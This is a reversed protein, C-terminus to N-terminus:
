PPRVAETAAHGPLVGVGVVHFFELRRTPFFVIEEPFVVLGRNGMRDAMFELAERVERGIRLVAHARSQHSVRVGLADDERGRFAYGAVHNPEAHELKLDVARVLSERRVLGHWLWAVVVLVLAEEDRETIRGGALFRVASRAVQVDFFPGRVLVHDVEVDGVVRIARAAVVVDAWERWPLVPPPYSKASRHRPCLPRM